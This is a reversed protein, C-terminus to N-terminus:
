IKDPYPETGDTGDDYPTVFEGEAKRQEHFTVRHELRALKQEIWSDVLDPGAMQRAQEVMIYADAVEEALKEASNRKRRAHLIETIMESCEEIVQDWQAPRGWLDIARRLLTVYSRQDV